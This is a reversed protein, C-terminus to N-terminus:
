FLNAIPEIINRSTFDVVAGYANKFDDLTGTCSVGGPIGVTCTWEGGSILEIESNSMNRM